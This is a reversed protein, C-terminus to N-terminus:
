KPPLGNPYTAKPLSDSDGSSMLIVGGLLGLGIIPILIGLGPEPPTVTITITKCEAM